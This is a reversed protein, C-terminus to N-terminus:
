DDEDNDEDDEDEGDGEENDENGDDDEHIDEDEGDGFDDGDDHGPGGFLLHQIANRCAPNLHKTCHRVVQGVQNAKQEALDQTRDCPNDEARNVCDQAEGCVPNAGSRCDAVASEVLTTAALAAGFGSEVAGEAQDRAVDCVTADGRALCSFVTACAEDAGDRCAELAAAAEKVATEVLGQAQDCSTGEERAACAEVSGAASHITSFAQRCPNGTPPPGCEVGACGVPDEKCDEYTPCLTSPLPSPLSEAPCVQVVQCPGTTQPRSCDRAAEEAEAAM